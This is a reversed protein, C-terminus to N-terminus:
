TKLGCCQRFLDQRKYVDLHTYSVSAISSTGSCVDRASFRSNSSLSTKVTQRRMNLRSNRGTGTAVAIVSNRETFYILSPSFARQCPFSETATSSAVATVTEITRPSKAVAPETINMSRSPSIKSSHVCLFDTASRAPAIASFTSLTQFFAPSVSIRTGIPSMSAPSSTTTRVPLRM